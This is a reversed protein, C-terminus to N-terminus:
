KLKSSKIIRSCKLQNKQKQKQKNKTKTKEQKIGLSVGVHNYMSWVIPLTDEIEKTACEQVMPNRGGVSSM